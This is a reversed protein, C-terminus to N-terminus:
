GPSLRVGAVCFIVRIFCIPISVVRRRRTRLQQAKQTAIAAAEMCKAGLPAHIVDNLAAALPERFISVLMSQSSRTCM